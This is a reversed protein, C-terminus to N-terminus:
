CFCPSLNRSNEGREEGRGWEATWVGRALLGGFQSISKAFEGGGEVKTQVHARGGGGGGEM